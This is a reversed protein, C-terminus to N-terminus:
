HSRETNYDEGSCLDIALLWISMAQGALRVRVIGEWYLQEEIFVKTGEKVSFIQGEIILKPLAEADKALIVNLLKKIGEKTYAGYTDKKVIYASEAFGKTLFYISLLFIAIILLIISKRM